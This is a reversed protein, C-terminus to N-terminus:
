SRVEPIRDLPPKLCYTHFARDCGDCQVNRLCDPWVHLHTRAQTRAPPRAHAPVLLTQEDNELRFCAQCVDMVEAAPGNKQPQTDGKEGGGRGRAAGGGGEEGLKRKKKAPSCRAGSTQAERRQRSAAELQAVAQEKVFEKHDRLVREWEDDGFRKALAQKVQKMTVTALDTDAPLQAMYEKLHKAIRSRTAEDMLIPSDM